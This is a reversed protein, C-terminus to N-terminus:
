SLFLLADLFALSSCSLFVSGLFLFLKSCSIISRGSLKKVTFWPLFLLRRMTEALVGSPLVNLNFYRLISWFLMRILLLTSEARLSLIVMNGLCGSSFLTQYRVACVAARRNIIARLTM